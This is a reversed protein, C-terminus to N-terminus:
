DVHALRQLRALAETPWTAEPAWSSLYTERGVSAVLDLGLRALSPTELDFTFTGRPVSHGGVVELTLTSWVDDTREIRLTAEGPEMGLYTEASEAGGAVEAITGILNAVVDSVYSARVTLSVQRNDLRLWGLGHPEVDMTLKM